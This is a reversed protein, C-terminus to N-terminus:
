MQPIRRGEALSTAIEAVRRARTPPMRATKVWRLLNRRYAAPLADWAGRAGAIAAALDDPVILADVDAYLDWLGSARGAEVAARGPPAMRGDAELREARAKYTASWAQQARPAVLQMTRAPDTPHVWRRGDVWGWAVVADLLADGALHRPDGKKWTVLLVGGARGHHAALWAHLAAPGDVEVADFRALAEAAKDQQTRPMPPAAAPAAGM